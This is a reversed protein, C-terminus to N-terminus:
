AAQSIGPWCYNIRGPLKEMFYGFWYPGDKATGSKTKRHKYELVVRYIMPLYDENM